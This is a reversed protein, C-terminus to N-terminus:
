PQDKPDIRFQSDAQAEREVVGFKSSHSFRYSHCARSTHTYVLGCRQNHVQELLLTAHLIHRDSPATAAHRAGGELQNRHAFYFAAQLTEQAADLGAYRRSPTGRISYLPSLPSSKFAMGRSLSYNLFMDHFMRYDWLQEEAVDRRSETYSVECLISQDHGLSVSTLKGEHLTEKGQGSAVRSSDTCLVCLSSLRICSADSEM